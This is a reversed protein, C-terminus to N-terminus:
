APRHSADPGHEGQGGSMLTIEFVVIAIVGNNWMTGQGLHPLAWISIFLWVSLITNLFRATPVSMAIFALVVFLVGVIWTNTRQAAGHEWAFASAFLWIGLLLNIGRAVRNAKSSRFLNGTM